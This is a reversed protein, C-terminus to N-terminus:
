VIFGWAWLRCFHESEQEAASPFIFPIVLCEGAIRHVKGHLQPKQQHGDTHSLPTGSRERKARPRSSFLVAWFYGRLLCFALFPFSCMPEESEWSGKELVDDLQLLVQLSKTIIRVDHYLWSFVCVCYWRGMLRFHFRGWSCPQSMSKGYRHEEVNWVM